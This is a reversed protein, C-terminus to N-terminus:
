GHNGPYLGGKPFVVFHQEAEQEAYRDDRKDEKACPAAGARSPRARLAVEAEIEAARAFGCREAFVEAKFVAIVEEPPNVLLLVPHPEEAVNEIGVHRVCELDGVRVVGLELGEGFAVRVDDCFYFCEGGAFFLVERVVEVCAPANLMGPVDQAAGAVGEGELGHECPADDVGLPCDFGCGKGVGGERGGECGGLVCQSVKVLLVFLVVADRRAEGEGGGSKLGVGGVGCGDGGIGRWWRFVFQALVCVGVCLCERGLEVECFEVVLELRAFVFDDLM